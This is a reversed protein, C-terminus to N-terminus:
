PRSAKWSSPEDFLAPIESRGIGLDNLQHSSMAMLEDRRLRTSAPGQAVWSAALRRGLRRLSAALEALRFLGAALTAGPTVTRIAASPM